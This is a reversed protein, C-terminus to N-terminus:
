PTRACRFGVFNFFTTPSPSGVGRGASRAQSADDIWAGGRIDRFKTGYDSNGVTNGPYADYWDSIWEWVNGAMDYAGYPSKGREYKGVISTDGVCFENNGESYNARTCDIGEGWPYTRGDTGRATKEWEAETPLRVDYIGGGAWNCYVSADNWSVNIVPYDAFETNGYYNAHTNSSSDHPPDCKGAAVCLTYEKNTVETQDIWFADLIVAHQPKEDDWRCTPCVQMGLAIDADTSGMLFDGEPVYIMMMGDTPRRWISGIDPSPTLTATNRFILGLSPNRIIYNVGIIGGMVVILGVIFPILNVKRAPKKKKKLLAGNAAAQQKKVAEEVDGSIPHLITTLAVNLYQKCLREMAEDFFGVPIELGNYHGLTALKGTLKESVSPSSFSFYDFFMPIINRKENIATEIERRLWDGPEDCRDLAAPTLIVLFHARAKINSLIIQEFDGSSISTYDFFVDYGRDTLYRYVNLAWSIDKRRYSIFVTKELRAM